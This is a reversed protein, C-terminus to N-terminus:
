KKIRGKINFKEELKASLSVKKELKATMTPVTTVVGIARIIGVIAAM